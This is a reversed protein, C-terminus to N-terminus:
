SLITDAIMTAMRVKQANKKQGLSSEATSLDIYGRHLMIRYILETRDISDAAFGRYVAMRTIDAGENDEGVVETQFRTAETALDVPRRSRISDKSTLRALTRRMKPPVLDYKFDVESRDVEDSNYFPTEIGPTNLKVRTNALRERRMFNNAIVAPLVDGPSQQSHVFTRKLKEDLATSIEFEREQFQPNKFRASRFTDMVEQGAIRPGEHEMGMRALQTYIVGSTIKKKEVLKKGVRKIEEAIAEMKPMNEASTPGFVNSFYTKVVREYLPGGDGDLSEELWRDEEKTIKQPPGDIQPIEYQGITPSFVDITLLVKEGNSGILYYVNDEEGNADVKQYEIDVVQMSNWKSGEPFSEGNAKYYAKEGMLMSKIRELSKETNGIGDRYGVCLEEHGERSLVKHWKLAETFSVERDPKNEILARKDPNNSFEVCSDFDPLDGSTGKNIRRGNIINDMAEEISTLRFSKGQPKEYNNFYVFSEVKTPTLVDETDCIDAVTIRANKEDPNTVSGAELLHAYLKEFPTGKLDDMRVFDGTETGLAYLGEEDNEDTGVHLSLMDGAVVEVGLLGNLAAPGQQEYLMELIKAVMESKGAGSDASGVLGVTRGDAYRLKFMAGHVPLAEKEIMIDNHITLLMKKMFGVYDTEDSRSIWATRFNKDGAKEEYFGTMQHEGMFKKPVGFYTVSDFDAENLQEKSTVEELRPFLRSLDRLLHLYSKHIVMLQKTGGVRVAVNIFEGSGIIEQFEPSAFKEKTEEAAEGSRKEFSYANGQVRKTAGTNAKNKCSVMEGVFDNGSISTKVHNPMNGNAAVGELVGYGSAFGHTMETSIKSNEPGAIKNFITRIHRGVLDSAGMIADRSSKSQDECVVLINTRITSSYWAIQLQVMIKSLIERQEPHITPDNNFANILKEVSYTEVVEDASKGSLEPIEKHFNRLLFEYILAFEQTDMFTMTSEEDYLKGETSRLNSVKEPISGAAIKLVLDVADSTDEIKFAFAEEESDIDIYGKKKPANDMLKKRKSLLEDLHSNRGAQDTARLNKGLAGDFEELNKYKPSGAEDKAHAEGWYAYLIEVGLKIKEELFQYSKKDGELKDGLSIRVFNGDGSKSMGVGTRKFLIELFQQVDFTTGNFRDLEINIYFAGEPKKYKIAEGHANKSCRVAREAVAFRKDVDEAAAKEPRISKLKKLLRKVLIEADHSNGGRGTLLCLDYYAKTVMRYGEYSIGSAILAKPSLQKEFYRLYGDITQYSAKQLGKYVDKTAYGHSTKQNVCHYTMLNPVEDSHYREMFGQVDKDNSIVLHARGGAESQNKTPTAITIVRVDDGTFRVKNREYIEAVPPHHPRVGTVEDKRVMKYYSSDDIVTIGFDSAIDLLAIVENDDVIQSSPNHPSNIIMAMSRFLASCTKPNDSMKRKTAMLAARLDKTKLKGDEGRKVIIKLSKKFEDEELVNEYSWMSRETILRGGINGDDRIEQLIKETYGADPKVDNLVAWTAEYLKKQAALKVRRARNEASDLWEKVHTDPHDEDTPSFYKEIANAMAELMKVPNREKRLLAEIQTGLKGQYGEIRPLLKGDFFRAVIDRAVRKPGRVTSGERIAKATLGNLRSHAAARQATTERSKDGRQTPTLSLGRISNKLEERLFLGVGHIGERGGGNGITAEYGNTKLFKYVYKFWNDKTKAILGRVYQTQQINTKGTKEDKVEETIGNKKLERILQLTEKFQRLSFMDAVMTRSKDDDATLGEGAYSLGALEGDLKSLLGEVKSYTEDITEEDFTELIKRLQLQTSSPRGAINTHVTALGSTVEEFFSYVKTTGTSNSYESNDIFIVRGLQKQWRPDKSIFHPLGQVHLIFVAGPTSEITGIYDQKLEENDDKVKLNNTKNRYLYKKIFKEAKKPGGSIVCRNLHEAGSFGLPIDDLNAAEEHGKLYHTAMEVTEGIADVLQSHARFDIGLVRAFEKIENPERNGLIIQRFQGLIKTTVPPTGLTLDITLLDILEKNLLLEKEAGKGDELVVKRGLLQQTFKKRNRSIKFIGSYSFEEMMATMAKLGFANLANQAEEIQQRARDINEESVQIGLDIDGEFLSLGLGKAKTEIGKLRGLEEEVQLMSYALANSGGLESVAEAM